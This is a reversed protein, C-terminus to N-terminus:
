GLGLENIAYLKCSNMVKNLPCNIAVFDYGELSGMQAKFGQINFAFHTGQRYRKSFTFKVAHLRPLQQLNNTLPLQLKIINLTPKSIIPMLNNLSRQNTQLKPNQNYFM